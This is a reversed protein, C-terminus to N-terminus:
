IYFLLRACITLFYIDGGGLEYPYLKLTQESFTPRYEKRAIICQLVIQTAFQYFDRVNRVFTSSRKATDFLLM